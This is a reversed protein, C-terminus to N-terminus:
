LRGLWKSFGINVSLPLSFYADTGVQYVRAELAVAVVLANKDRLRIHMGAEGGLLLLQMGPLPRNPLDDGQEMWLSGFGVGFHGGLYPRVQGETTYFRKGEILLLLYGASANREGYSYFDADTFVVGGGGLSVGHFGKWREVGESRSSMTNFSFMLEGGTGLDPLMLPFYRAYISQLNESGYLSNLDSPQASAPATIAARLLLVLAAGIIKPRHNKM